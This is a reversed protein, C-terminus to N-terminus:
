EEITDRECSILPARQVVCLPHGTHVRRTGLADAKCVIRQDLGPSRPASQAKDVGVWRDSNSHCDGSLWLDDAKCVRNSEPQRPFAPTMTLSARVLLSYLICPQHYTTTWPIDSNSLSGPISCYHTKTVTRASGHSTLTLISKQFGHITTGVSYLAHGGGGGGEGPVPATCQNGAPQLCHSAPSFTRSQQPIPIQCKIM